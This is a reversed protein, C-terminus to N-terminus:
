PMSTRHLHNLKIFTTFQADNSNLITVCLHLLWWIVAAVVCCSTHDCTFYYAALLFLVKLVASQSYSARPELYFVSKPMSYIDTVHPVIALAPNECSFKWPNM